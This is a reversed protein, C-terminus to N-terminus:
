DKLKATVSQVRTLSDFLDELSRYQRDPLQLLDALVDSAVNRRQARAVIEAKGAPFPSTGVFDAVRSRYVRDVSM